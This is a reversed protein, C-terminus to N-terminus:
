QAGQTSTPQVPETVVVPDKDPPNQAAKLLKSEYYKVKSNWKNYFTKASKMKKSWMEVQKKSHELKILDKEQGQPKVVKESAKKSLLLTDGWAWIDEWGKAWTYRPNDKMEGHKFGRNHFIEHAIVKCLARQDPAVGKVLTIWFTHSNYFAWGGPHNDPRRGSRKRYNFTVNIRKIFEPSLREFKAVELVFHKLDRTLYETNNTIKM